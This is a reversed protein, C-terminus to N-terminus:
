SYSFLTGFQFERHNVWESIYKFRVMLSSADFNYNIIILNIPFLILVLSTYLHVVEHM